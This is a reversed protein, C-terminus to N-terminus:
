TMGCRWLMLPVVHHLLPSEGLDAVRVDWHGEVLNDRVLEATIEGDADTHSHPHSSVVPAPMSTGAAGATGTQVSLSRATIPRAASPAPGSSLSNHAYAIGAPPQSLFSSHNTKTTNSLAQFTKEM